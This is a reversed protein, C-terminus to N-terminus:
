GQKLSQLKLHLDQYCHSPVFRRRMSVKMDEWNDIPVEHNSQWNLVLQDWWVLAYDIFAVAALKVKKQKSYNHCDFIHKM